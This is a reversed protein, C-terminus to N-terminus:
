LSGQKFVKGFEESGLKPSTDELDISVFATRHELSCSALTFFHGINVGQLIAHASLGPWRIDLLLSGQM